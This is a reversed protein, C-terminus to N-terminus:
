LNLSVFLYASTQDDDAFTPMLVPEANFRYRILGGVTLVYQRGLDFRRDTKVELYDESSRTITGGRQVNVLFDEPTGHYSSGGMYRSTVNWNGIDSSAGFYGRHRRWAYSEVNDSSQDLYTYGGIWHVGAMDVGFQFEAGHQKITGSNSPNFLSFNLHEGIVDDLNDNFVKFDFDAESTKYRYGLERSTITENKLDGTAKVGYYYTLPESGYVNKDFGDLTYSWNIRQEFIDPTRAARSWVARFSQQPSVLYNVAFRPMVAGDDLDSNEYMTGINTLFSGARWEANAFARVTYMNVGGDLYTKSATRIGQYGLGSVVRLTDSIKLTDQIEVATLGETFNQNTNGCMITKSAAGLAGAHAIVANRLKDADAGGGTPFGGHLLTQAYTSNVQYLARLEPMLVLAPLCSKWEQNQEGHTSYLSADIRHDTSFEHGLQASAYQEDEVVDPATVASKDIFQVQQWSRSAGARIALSTQESIASNLALHLSGGHKDDRVDNRGGAAFSNASVRWNTQEGLASGFQMAQFTQDGGNSGRYSVGQTEDTRKTIINIVATFANTGYAVADPGRVVEIRQVDEIIVPLTAWEVRAEGPRYAIMGDVLILLHRAVAGDAGHYAVNTYRGGTSVLMGPVMTLAEPITRFGHERIDQATVVSVSAPAETVTQKLRSVTLITDDNEVAIATVSVAYLAAVVAIRM